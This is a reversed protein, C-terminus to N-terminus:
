ISRDEFEFLAKGYGLVVFLGIFYANRKLTQKCIDAIPKARWTSRSYGTEPQRHTPAIASHAVLPILIRFFFPSPPVEGKERGSGVSKEGAIEITGM